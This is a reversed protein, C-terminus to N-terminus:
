LKGTVKFLGMLHLLGIRRVARNKKLDHVYRGNNLIFWLEGRVKFYNLRMVELADKKTTSTKTNQNNKHKKKKMGCIDAIVLYLENAFDTLKGTRKWVVESVPFPHNAFFAKNLNQMHMSIICPM